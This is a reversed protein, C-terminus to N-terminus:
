FQGGAKLVYQCVYVQDDQLLLNATAQEDRERSGRTAPVVRM